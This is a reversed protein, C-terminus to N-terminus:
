DKFKMGAQKEIGKLTGVPIDRKPHPVTVLGKKIPHKFHWHDGTTRKHEWGDAEIMKIIDRSNMHIFICMIELVTAFAHRNECYFIALEDSAAGVATLIAATREDLLGSRRIHEAV